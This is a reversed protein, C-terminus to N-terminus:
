KNAMNLYQRNGITIRGGTRSKPKKRLLVTVYYSSFEPAAGVFKGTNPVKNSYHFILKTLYVM